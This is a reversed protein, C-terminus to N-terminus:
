PNNGKHEHWFVIRGSPTTVLPGQDKWHIPSDVKPNDKLNSHATYLDFIM